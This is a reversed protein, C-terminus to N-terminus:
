TPMASGLWVAELLNSELQDFASILSSVDAKLVDLAHEVRMHNEEQLSLGSLAQLGSVDVSEVQSGSAQLWFTCRIRVLTCHQPQANM